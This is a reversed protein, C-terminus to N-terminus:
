PLPSRPRSDPDPFVSLTLDAGEAALLSATQDRRYSRRVQYRMEDDLYAKVEALTVTGDRRGYGDADAAGYLGKLAYYTFAGHGKDPLWHAYQPRDFATATLVALQTEPEPAAVAVGFAGSTQPVLTGAQTLGSFCADLLVTVRTAPLKALNRYLLDLPYGGLGPAEPRADVPLLYGRAGAGGLDPVGHGSYFVFVESEGPKVTWYLDGRPDAASGFVTRLETLGVDRLDLINGPRIGLVRRVYGRVADADAHAYTVDPAAAYAKNGVIVAVGYPNAPPTFASRAPPAAAAAPAGRDAVRPTGHETVPLLGHGARVRDLADPHGHVAARRLWFRAKALDRSLCNGDTAILRGEAYLSGIRALAAAHGQDGARELWRVSERCNRDEGVGYYLMAGLAYQASALGQEAARRLWLAAQRADRDVGRGRFYLVALDHQAAALGQRAARRLWDAAAREDRKVGRGRLYLHGLNYQAWDHAHAVAAKRYWDHAIAYIRSVGQGHEHLWGLRNQAAPDDDEQAARLLGDTADRLLSDTQARRIREAVAHYGQRVSLAPRPLFDVYDAPGTGDAEPGGAAAARDASAASALERAGQRDGHAAAKRFWARAAEADKPVGRGEAYAVGLRRLAEANGRAGARTLWVVAAAADRAVGRGEAYMKALALQAKAYGQEAARRYRQAAAAADRPVGIGTEYFQGLLFQGLPDGRGAAKRLWDLATDIDFRVGDGNAYLAALKVQAEVVGQEAARELWYAATEPDRAGGQGWLYLSALSHQARTHGQEAAKRYWNRARFADETRVRDAAKGLGLELLLGMSAQAEPDGGHALPELIALASDYAEDRIAQIGDDLDGAAAAPVAALMAAALVGAGLRRRGGARVRKDM